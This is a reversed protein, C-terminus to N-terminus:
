VARQSLIATQVLGDGLSPSPLLFLISLLFAMWIVGGKGVALVVPGLGKIFWITPVGWCHFNEKSVRVTQVLRGGSVSFSSSLPYIFSFGDM